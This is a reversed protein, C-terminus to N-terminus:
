KIRKSLNEIYKILLTSFKGRAKEAEIKVDEHDLPTDLIGAACNTVCSIAMINYGAHKAAISEPVTSMGVVDAGLLRFFRIEAPTEYSPGTVHLYIGKKLDINNEEAIARVIENEQKSYVETMDPFRPGLFDHNKGILPNNGSLNIHDELCVLDGPTFAKNISGAANTLILNSAGMQRCVRLPFNLEDYTMGEYFHYRGKQFAFVADNIKTFVLEGSHGSVTTKKFNPIDEYKISIKEPFINALEGLGSGLVVLGALKSTGSFEELKQSLYKKTENIKEKM